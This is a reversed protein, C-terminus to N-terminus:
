SATCRRAPWCFSGAPSFSRATSPPRAAFAFVVSRTLFITPKTTSKPRSVQLWQAAGMRQARPPWFDCVVSASATAGRVFHRYNRRISQQGHGSFPFVTARHARLARAIAQIRCILFPTDLSNKLSRWCKTPTWTMRLFTYSVLM